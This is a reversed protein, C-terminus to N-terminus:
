STCSLNRNNFQIVCRGHPTGTLDYLNVVYGGTILDLVAFGFESTDSTSTIPAASGAGPMTYTSGPTTSPVFQPDLLTGSDGVVLQPAYAANNLKVAQFNHIHGSLLLKIPQPVGNAFLAQEDDDGGNTSQSTGTGTTASLGYAPKHTVFITNAPLSPQIASLQAQYMSVDASTVASDNAYSSDFMLLTAQGVAVLYPTTFDYTSGATCTFSAVNYASPDLLTFWGKNGRACSEHNGRTLALPAASMMAQAPTFWDANWSTWQDGYPSGGCGTTTGNGASAAPCANERYYYDGVHVILDPVFSAVFNSIRALPFASPDNCAQISTGKLRCGTDGVVVIRRPNPTPLKMQVGDLVASTHGMGISAECELVPFTSNPASRQNLTVATGDVSLAPCVTGSTIARALVTNNPGYQIWRNLTQGQATHVGLGLGVLAFTGVVHRM